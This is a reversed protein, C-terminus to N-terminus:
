STTLADFFRRYWAITLELGGDLGFMPSWDLLARAKSASLFQAGIENSASDRVDAAVDVGMLVAVRRVLEMVTMPQENSFNFAQGALSRDSALREALLMYAAAVDEVYFYDRVLLGSSRILPVEGRILSRVTGPIIRNWNLDGGGFINGCRTIAVPLSYTVAYSQAILDACAKSVDYPHAGRLPTDEDYPLEAHEGYAKDSSAVIIQGVVPSRRCAELLAWTGKINSEFTFAPNRNAVGVITQAALHFVTSIEYEGLTRELLGQDEVNGRVVRVRQLNGTRVIAVNPVWDRVLCAVDAGQRLLTKVLWGGVLGTAGTVLVSRDLWFASMGM